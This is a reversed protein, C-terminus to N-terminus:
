SPPGAQHQANVQVFAAGSQPRVAEEGTAYRLAEAVRRLMLVASLM